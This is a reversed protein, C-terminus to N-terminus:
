ATTRRQVLAFSAALLLGLIWLAVPGLTPVPHGVAPIAYLDQVGHTASGDVTHNIGNTNGRTVGADGTMLSLNANSGFHDLGAAHGAEHLMVTLMDFKTPDVTDDTNVLWYWDNDNDLTLTQTSPIFVGHCDHNGGCNGLNVTIEIPAATVPTFSLNSHWPIGTGAVHDNDTLWNKPGAATGAAQWKAFANAALGPMHADWLAKEAASTDGGVTAPIVRFRIANAPDVHGHAYAADIDYHFTRDNQWSAYAEYHPILGHSAIGSVVDHTTRHQHNNLGSCAGGTPFTCIPVLGHMHVPLNKVDADATSALALAVVIAAIATQRPSNM